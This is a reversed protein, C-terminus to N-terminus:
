QGSPQKAAAAKQEDVSKQFQDISKQAEGPKDEYKAMENAFANLASEHKSLLGRNYALAPDADKQQQANEARQKDLSALTDAYMKKTADDKADAAAKKMQQYSQEMSASMAESMKETMASTSAALIQGKVWQYEATNYHLDKAARIDATLFEGVTNIGKLGEMVGALSKDGDKKIKADQEQLKAKAAQAIVRERDRVKLYMQIQGETLKGDKPAEYHDNSAEKMVDLTGRKELDRAASIKDYAEKAKCGGLLMSLVAVASFIRRM